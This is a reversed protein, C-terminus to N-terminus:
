LGGLKSFVEIRSCRNNTVLIKKTVPDVVVDFPLRLKGPDTGYGGITALLQGSGPDLVLVEGSFCDVLLLHGEDDLTLGQPRSFRLGFMGQKGSITNILTGDYDFVQVRPNIGNGKDGYDSVYIRQQNVDLAIGTPNALTNPVPAAAPITRVLKLRFNLVMVAKQGGDVVFVRKVKTDVAIDTPQQMFVESTGLKKGNQRYVELCNKTENGVLIRRKVCAVGLPKGDVPFGHVVRRGRGGVLLIMGLRYDSVALKYKSFVALRVPSVLKHANLNKKSTEASFVLPCYVLTIIIILLFPSLVVKKKM